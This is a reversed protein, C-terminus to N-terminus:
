DADLEEPFKLIWDAIDKAWKKLDQRQITYTTPIAQAILGDKIRLDYVEVLEGHPEILQTSYQKLICCEIFPDYKASDLFELLIWWPVFVTQRDQHAEDLAEIVEDLTKDLQQISDHLTM